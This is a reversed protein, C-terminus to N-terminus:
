ARVLAAQELARASEPRFLAPGDDEPAPQIEVRVAGPAWASALPHPSTSMVLLLDVEARLTVHDGTSCHNEVLRLDPLEVKTFLNATAHLDGRDLGHKRLESLLGARASMRRANRDQQYSSEGFRAVHADVSHGCVADHWDLSSSTMSMLGIGRDSMLVMPPRLCAGMQAKLTDPVNLRDGDATLLLLSVCAGAELASFRM